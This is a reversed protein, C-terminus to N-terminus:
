AVPEFENLHRARVGGHASQALHQAKPAAEVEFLASRPFDEMGEVFVNERRLGGAM